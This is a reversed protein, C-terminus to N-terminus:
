KRASRRRRILSLLGVLAVADLGLLGCNGKSPSSSGTSGVNAPGNAPPGGSGPPANVNVRFSAGNVDTPFIIWPSSRGIQDVTRGQWHYNANPLGDFKLVAINAPTAVPDDPAVFLAQHSPSNTFPAGTPQIEMQLILSTGAPNLTETFVRSSLFVTTGSVFGALPVDAAAGLTPDTLTQRLTTQFAVTPLGVNVAVGPGNPSFQKMLISFNAASGDAWAVVPSGFQDLKLSPQIAYNNSLSVGGIPAFTEANITPFASGQFGVQDWNGSGGIGLFLRRVYISSRGNSDDAWAVAAYGGNVDLSPNSAHNLTRSIGGAANSGGIGAFAGGGVSRVAYIQSTTGPNPPAAAETEQWAITVNTTAGFRDAAISPFQSPTATNSVGGAVASSGIGAWAAYGFADVQNVNGPNVALEYASSAVARMYYTEFNGGRTDQWALHLNGVSDVGLSPYQSVSGSPTLSVSIPTGKSVGAGSLPYWGSPVPPLPPNPPAAPQAFAGPYFAQVMVQTAGNRPLDYAVVPVSEFKSPSSGTVNGLGDVTIVGAIFAYINTVTPHLAPSFQFSVGQASGSGDRESWTGVGPEDKLPWHRVMICIGGSTDDEWAVTPTGSVGLSMSPHSSKGTTNSIGGPNMSPGLPFFEFGNWWRLYIDTNNPTTATAASDDAWCVFPIGGDALVLQPNQTHGHVGSVGTGTGSGAFDLWPDIVVPYAARDMFSAPVDLVIEGNEHRPLLAIEQGKADIAVATHYALRTVGAADCFAVGGKAFEVELFANQGPIRNSISGGLDSTVPIRLSLDGDGLPKPIRYLQEVRTNEFLYEEVVPGHDLRTVGFGARSFPGRELELTRTGQRIRPTGFAVNFERSAWVSGQEPVAGFVCADVGVRAKYNAGRFDIGDKAVNDEVVRFCALPRATPDATKVTNSPLRVPPADKMRIAFSAAGIALAVFFVTRLTKQIM